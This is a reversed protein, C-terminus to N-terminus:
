MPTGDNMTVSPPRSTQRPGANWNTAPGAIAAVRGAGELQEAAPGLAGSPSVILQTTPVATAITPMM